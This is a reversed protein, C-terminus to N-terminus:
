VDASVPKNTPYFAMGGGDHWGFWGQPGDDDEGEITLHMTTHANIKQVTMQIQEWLEALKALALLEDSVLAQM